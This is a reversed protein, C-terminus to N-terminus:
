NKFCQRCRVIYNAVDKKMRLGFYKNGIAACTKWYSHYAVYIVNHMEKLVLKKLEYSNGVHIRNKHM